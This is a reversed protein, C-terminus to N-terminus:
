DGQGDVHNVEKKEGGDAARCKRTWWNLMTSSYYLKTLKRRIFFEDVCSKVDCGGKLTQKYDHGGWFGGPRVADYGLPLESEVCPRRHDSDHYVFDLNALAPLADVSKQYLWIIDTMGTYRHLRNRAFEKAEKLDPNGPQYDANEEYPDILYLKELPLVKLIKEANEGRHVGVEAGVLRGAKGLAAWMIQNFMPEVWDAGIGIHIENYVEMEVPSEGEDELEGDSLWRKFPLHTMGIEPVYVEGNLHVDDLLIRHGAKLFFNYEEEVITKKAFAIKAKTSVRNAM